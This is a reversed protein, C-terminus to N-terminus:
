SNSCQYTERTSGVLPSYSQKYCVTVKPIIALEGNVLNYGHPYSRDEVVTLLKTMGFSTTATPWRVRKGSNSREPLTILTSKRVRINDLVIATCAATAAPIATYATVYCASPIPSATTTSAQASYRGLASSSCVLSAVALVTYSLHSHM